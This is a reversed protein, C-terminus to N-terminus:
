ARWDMEGASEGTSPPHAPRESYPLNGTSQPMNSSLHWADGGTEADIPFLVDSAPVPDMEAQEHVRDLIQLNPLQYPPVHLTQSLLQEYAPKWGPPKQVDEPVSIDIGVGAAAQLSLKRFITWSRWASLSDAAMVALWEVVKEMDRLLQEVQTPVHEAKLSLELMLVAGAQTIYHLLSWCPLMKSAHFTAADDPLLALMDRAASICSVAAEQNFNQSPASEHHIKGTLHCICPYFLIMRISQYSMALEYRNLLEGGRRDSSRLDIGQPMDMAAPIDASWQTLERDLERISQQIKSWAGRPSTSSYLSSRIKQGIISLRVRCAFYLHPSYPLGELVPHPQDLPVQRLGTGTPPPQPSPSDVKRDRTIELPIAIDYDLISTPRGTFDGLLQELSYLSWWTRSHLHQQGIGIGAGVRLHLGLAIAHRIAHGITTWARYSKKASTSLSFSLV